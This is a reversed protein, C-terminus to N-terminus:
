MYFYRAADSLPEVAGSPHALFGDAFVGRWVRGTRQGEPMVQVVIELVGGDGVERYTTLTAVQAGLPVEETLWEPLARLTAYPLTRLQAVRTGVLQRVVEPSVSSV